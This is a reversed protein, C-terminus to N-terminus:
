SASRAYAYLYTHCLEHVEVISSNEVAYPIPPMVAPPDGTNDPSYGSQRLVKDWFLTHAGCGM